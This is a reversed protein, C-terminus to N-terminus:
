QDERATVFLVDGVLRFGVAASAVRNYNLRRRNGDENAYVRAIGQHRLDALKDTAIPIAELYGDVFAQLETLTFRGKPLNTSAPWVVRKSGDPKIVYSQGM